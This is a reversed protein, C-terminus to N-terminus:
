DPDLMLFGGEVHLLPTELPAVILPHFEKSDLDSGQPVSPAKSFAKATSGM